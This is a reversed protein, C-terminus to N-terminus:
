SFVLVSAIFTTAAAGGIQFWLVGSAFLAKTKWDYGHPDWDFGVRPLIGVPVIWLLLMYISYGVLLGWWFFANEAPIDTGPPSYLTDGLVLVATFLLFGGAGVITIVVLYSVPWSDTWGITTFLARVRNSELFPIWVIAAGFGFGASLACLQLLTVATEVVAVM